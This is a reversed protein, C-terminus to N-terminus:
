FAAEVQTGAIIRRFFVSKPDTPSVGAVCFTAVFDNGVAKLGEYDGLFLGPVPDGEGLFLAKELDFSLGTLRLENGCNGPNTLATPTTPKGFVAWYDTPLGPGADNNRFDYYTVAVTGDGAVKVSPLWAQQDGAPINTPTKNVQIPASWTLGGDTSMSFAISSH